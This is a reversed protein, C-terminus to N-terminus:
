SLLFQPPWTSRQRTQKVNAFISGCMPQASFDTLIIRLFCVFIELSFSGNIFDCGSLESFARLFTGLTVKHRLTDRAFPSALQLEHTVEGRVKM